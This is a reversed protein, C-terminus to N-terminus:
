YNKSRKNKWELEGQDVCGSIEKYLRKLEKGARTLRMRTQSSVKGRRRESTYASRASQYEAKTSDIQRRLQDCRNTNNSSGISGSDGSSTAGGGTQELIMMGGEKVEGANVKLVYKDFESLQDDLSKGKKSPIKKRAEALAKTKKLDVLKEPLKFLDGKADHFLVYGDKVQYGDSYILTKGNKLVLKGTDGMTLLAFLLVIM